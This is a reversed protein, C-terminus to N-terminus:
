FFAQNGSVVAVAQEYRKQWLVAETEEKALIEAMNACRRWLKARREKLFTGDRELIDAMKLQERKSEVAEEINRQLLYIWIDSNICVSDM